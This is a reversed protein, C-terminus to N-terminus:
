SRCYNMLLHFVASPVVDEEEEVFHAGRKWKVQDLM